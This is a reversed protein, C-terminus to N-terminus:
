KAGRIFSLYATWVFSIVHRVPLRLYMPVSFCLLDSPGWVKLTTVSDQSFNKKYNSLGNNVWDQPRWSDSFVFGKFVYFTPLYVFVMVTLDTVCQAALSILGPVDTAKAMWTQNTFREANSFLRKFVNVQYLYQFGGLYAAGFLCFVMNRNWDIDKFSKREIVCQAVLDAASTKFTAIIVNNAFPFTKAFTVYSWSSTQTGVEEAAVTAKGRIGLALGKPLTSTKNVPGSGRLPNVNRIPNNPACTRV